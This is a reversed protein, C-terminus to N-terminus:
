NNEKQIGFNPDSQLCIEEVASTIHDSQESGTPSQRGIVDTKALASPPPLVPSSANRAFRRSLLDFIPPFVIFYLSALAAGFLGCVVSGFVIVFIYGVIGGFFSLNRWNGEVCDILGFCLPLSFGILAGIEIARKAGQKELVPLSSWALLQPEQPSMSLSKDPCVHEALEPQLQTPAPTGCCPCNLVDGKVHAACRRCLWM